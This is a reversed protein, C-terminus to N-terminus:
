GSDALVNLDIPVLQGKLSGDKLGDELNQAAHSDLTLKQRQGAEWGGSGYKEYVAGRLLFPGQLNTDSVKVGLLERAGQKVSGQFPLVGTYNHVPIVKKVHLPGALRVFNVGVDEVKLVLGPVPGPAGVPGLSPMIWALIIIALLVWTSFNLYTLSLLAPYPTGVQRWKAIRSVVHTRMILLFGFLYYLLAASSLSDGIFALDIFLAVGGPILGIWANHWRFVSWAFLFVGLWTVGVLM